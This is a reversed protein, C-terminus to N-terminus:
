ESREMRNIIRRVETKKGHTVRVIVIGQGPQGYVVLSGTPAALVAVLTLLDEEGDVIVLSNPKYIASEVIKWASRDITGPPNITRFIHRGSHTFQVAETRKEKNDVIVIDPKINSQVAHRSVTDGVLVLLRPKERTITHKLADNCENPTGAVLEGLPEKM